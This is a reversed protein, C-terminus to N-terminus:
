STGYGSFVSTYFGYMYSRAQDESTWFEEDTFDDFPEVNLYSCGAAPLLLLSILLYKYIKKM